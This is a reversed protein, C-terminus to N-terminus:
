HLSVLIRSLKALDMFLYPCHVNSFHRSPSPSLLIRFVGTNLPAMSSILDGLGM